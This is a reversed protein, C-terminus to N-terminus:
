RRLPGRDRSWESRTLRYLLDGSPTGDSLPLDPHTRPRTDVLRFDCREAVRRSRANLENCELRVEEVGLREFAVRLVGRTAEAVFGKGEHEGDVFYGVELALPHPPRAPVGVYIQAVFGSGQRDWAGLFYARGAWWDAEFRALLASAEELSEVRRAPNGAEFPSLHDRNRRCVDLYAPADEARYPRLVLRETLIESPLEVEPQPMGGEGGGTRMAERHNRQTIGRNQSDKPELRQTASFPRPTASRLGM